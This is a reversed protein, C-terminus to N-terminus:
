LTAALLINAAALLQFSLQLGLAPILVFGAVLSGLVAGSTNALVVLGVGEGTRTK